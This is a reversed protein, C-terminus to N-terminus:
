KTKIYSLILDKEQKTLDKMVKSQDVERIIQSLEYFNIKGKQLYINLQQRVTNENMSELFEILRYFATPELCEKPLKDLITM